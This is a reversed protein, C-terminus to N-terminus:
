GELGPRLTIESGGRGWVRSAQAAAEARRRLIEGLAESPEPRGRRRHPEGTRDLQGPPRRPPTLPNLDEFIGLLITLLVYFDGVNGSINMSIMLFGYFDDGTPPQAM